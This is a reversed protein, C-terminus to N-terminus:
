PLDYGVRYTNQRPSDTEMVEAEGLEDADVLSDLNEYEEDTFQDKTTITVYRGNNNVTCHPFAARALRALIACAENQTM